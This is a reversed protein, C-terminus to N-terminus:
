FKLEPNQEKDRKIARLINTLSESKGFMKYVKDASTNATFGYQVRRSVLDWFPKRMCYKHKVRGSEEPTFSKASIMGCVGQQYEMWLIFLSRPTPTLTVRINVRSNLTRITNMGEEVDRHRSFVISSNTIRTIGKHLM